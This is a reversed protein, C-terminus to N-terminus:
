TCRCKEPIILNIGNNGLCFYLMEAIMGFKTYRYSNVQDKKKLTTDISSENEKAGCTLLQLKM